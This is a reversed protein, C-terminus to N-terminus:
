SVPLCQAPLDFWRLHEFDESLTGSPQDADPTEENGSAAFLAIAEALYNALDSEAARDEHHPYRM